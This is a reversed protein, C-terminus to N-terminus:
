RRAEKPRGKAQQDYEEPAIEEFVMGLHLCLRCRAPFYEMEGPGKMRRVQEPDTCKGKCRPCNVLQYRTEVREVAEM